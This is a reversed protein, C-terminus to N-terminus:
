NLEYWCLGESLPGPFFVQARVVYKNLLDIYIAYLVIM